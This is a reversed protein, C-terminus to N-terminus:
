TISCKVESPSTRLILWGFLNDEVCSSHQEGSSSSAAVIIPVAVNFLYPSGLRYKASGRLPFHM